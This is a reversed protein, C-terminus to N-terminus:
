TQLLLLISTRRSQSSHPGNWFSSSPQYEIHLPDEGAFLQQLYLVLVTFDCRNTSEEGGQVPIAAICEHENEVFETLRIPTLGLGLYMGDVCTQQPRSNTGGVLRSCKESM